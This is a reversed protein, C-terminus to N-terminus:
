RESREEQWNRWAGLAKRALHWMPCQRLSPCQGSSESWFWFDCDESGSHHMSSQVRLPWQNFWSKRVIDHPDDYWQRTSCIVLKLVFKFRWGSTHVAQIGVHWGWHPVTLHVIKLCIWFMYLFWGGFLYFLLSQSFYRYHFRHLRKQM